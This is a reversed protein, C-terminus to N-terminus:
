QDAGTGAWEASLGVSLIAEHEPSTVFQYKVTTELNQFGQVKDSGPARVRTWTEGLSVGLRSTLRKSYEGSVDLERAAPDDGTKFSSITPLSLEDAVGPDDTALTAPFFRNGVVAHAGAPHAYPTLAAAPGARCGLPFPAPPAGPAGPPHPMRRPPTPGRLLFAGLLLFLLLPRRAGGTAASKPGGM